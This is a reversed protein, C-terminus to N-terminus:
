NFNDKIKDRDEVEKNNKHYLEIFAVSNEQEFHAYILRFGSMAGCGKFSKRAIKRVKIECSELGLNDIHFSFPPRASPAVNIVQEVKPKLIIRLLM